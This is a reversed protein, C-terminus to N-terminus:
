KHDEKEGDSYMNFVRDARRIALRAARGNRKRKLALRVCKKLVISYYRDLALFDLYFCFSIKRM